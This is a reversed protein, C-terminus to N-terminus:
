SDERATVVVNGAVTSCSAQFEPPLWLVQKGDCTTWDGDDSLKFGVHHDAELEAWTANILEPSGISLPELDTMFLTAGRDKLSRRTPQHTLPFRQLLTHSPLDRIEITDTFTALVLRDDDSSFVLSAIRTKDRLRKVSRRFTM